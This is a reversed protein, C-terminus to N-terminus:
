KEPILIVLEEQDKEVDYRHISHPAPGFIQKGDSDFTSKNISCCQVTDTGPVPDLRRHGIHTCQNRFARYEGNESHVVLVRAPLGKGELRVASGPQSLEALENLDIVVRGEKYAWCDANGPQQTASIGFIRQFLSRKLFKIDM